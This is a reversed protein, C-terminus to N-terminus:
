LSSVGWRVCKHLFSNLEIYFSLRALDYHLKEQIPRIRDSEPLPSNFQCTLVSFM